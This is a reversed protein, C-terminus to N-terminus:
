TRSMYNIVDQSVGAKQLDRVDSDSLSFTSQTADIQKKITHDSFGARSMAKIDSRSLQKGQEIRKVTAPSVASLKRIDRDSLSSEQYYRGNSNDYNGNVTNRTGQGVDEVTEGAGQVVDGAGNVAGSVIGANSTGNYYNGNVTNDAGQGVDEVTEGTGQVVDGAGNVAGGVIGANSTGNYAGDRNRGRPAPEGYGSRPDRGDYSQQEYIVTEDTQGDDRPVVVRTERNCGGLSVLGLGAVCVLLWRNM